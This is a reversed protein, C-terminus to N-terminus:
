RAERLEVRSEDLTYGTVTLDDSDSTVRVPWVMWNRPSPMECDFIIIQDRPRQIIPQTVPTGTVDHRWTASIVDLAKGTTAIAQVGNPLQASVNPRMRRITFGYTPAVIAERRTMVYMAGVRYVTVGYTAYDNPTGASINIRIYRASVALSGLIGRYRLAEDSVMTVTGRSTWTSADPSTEVTASAFNGDHIMLCAINYSAGLDYTLTQALASTAQWPKDLYESSANLAAYGTGASTATASTPVLLGSYVATM